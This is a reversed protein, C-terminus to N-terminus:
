QRSLVEILYRLEEGVESPSEVTRGIDAKILDRFRKRLRHVAVKFAGESMALKRAADAQSTMGADGALWPRLGDFEKRRGAGHFEEELKKLAREMLAYAWQRDFYTDPVPAVAAAPPVVRTERTDTELSAPPVGGGRRGAHDRDRMDALFHEVAGLLYSRFRGRGPQVTDIGGRALLRAFFEQTLERAADEGRGERLIFRFVPTWYVECLESLAQRAEPSEGRAQLVRTWHTTAFIGPPTQDNV